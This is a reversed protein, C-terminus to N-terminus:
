YMPFSLCKCAGGAKMFSYMPIQHIEFGLSTRLDYFTLSSKLNFKMEPTIIHKNFVISNCIFSEAEEDSVDIVTKFHDYIWDTTSPDIAKSYLMVTKEDLPCFCTDLHYFREDILKLSKIEVQDESPKNDNILKSIEDIAELDTRIGYGIVLLHNTVWLSDGHGEFSIKPDLTKINYKKSFYAKFYQSEVKREDPKFNSLIFDKGENIILGCDLFVMDPCVKQPEIIKVKAFKEITNKLYNWEKRANPIDEELETMWPNIKYAIKFYTPPCLLITKPNYVNM